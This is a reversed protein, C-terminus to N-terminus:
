HKRTIICLAPVYGACVRRGFGFVCERPDAQPNDGMFREPDFVSPDPYVSEDHTMAWINTIVTTKAPIFFGKYTDPQSTCHFLGVPTPPAWRLVEKVVAGLYPFAAQDRLTPLRNERAFFADAEAQARCQVAPYMMM